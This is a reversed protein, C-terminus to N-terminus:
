MYQIKKVTCTYYEAVFLYNRTDVCLGSPLNLECNDIYRLFQGDEDLIHIRHNNYISAATLIRGQSDTTIGHPDFLRKDHSPPGTYTFRHKGAQNFVVVARAGNDLLCIDLNRNETIYKIDDDSSYLPKGKEDNLIIQKETSESYRVVKTNNDIDSNIVVLLDGSSTCCVGRPKWGQLRILTEIQTTKVINVTSDSDDTYVLDGSRTVAIGRPANGSKTHISRVLEGRLNYLRIVKDEGCWIEEDSLCSVSDLKRGKTKIKTIIRPVDILPRGPPFSKADPSEMTYGVEETKFSLPSLSGFQQYLQEKNIKHPTFSPLSETIKPPLRRFEDNRSKYAFVSSVENSNLLEKLDAIIKTIESINRTIKGEQKYLVAMLTSDMEDLDSKLKQIITDIERHWLEGHKDIATKLKISTKNWASKQVQIISEIDQYKPNILKEIEHLDEQIIEKKNDMTKTIEIVSHGNHEEFCKSCVSIDCQECYHECIKFSHKKCKPTLGRKEFPVVKHEKLQDSLHDGECAKCLYKSCIVCYMPPGPTECLHCRLVDQLNYEPDMSM